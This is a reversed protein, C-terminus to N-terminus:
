CPNPGVRMSAPRSGRLRRVQRPHPPHLWSSSPGEFHKQGRFQVVTKAIFSKDDSMLRGRGPPGPWELRRWRPARTPAVPHPDPTREGRGRQASMRPKSGPWAWSRASTRRMTSSASSLVRIRLFKASKSSAEEIWLGTPIPPHHQDQNSKQHNPQKNHRGSTTVVPWADLLHAPGAWLAQHEVAAHFNVVSAGADRRPCCSVEAEVM